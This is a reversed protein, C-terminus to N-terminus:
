MILKKGCWVTVKVWVRTTNRRDLLEANFYQMSLVLVVWETCWTWWILCTLLDPIYLRLDRWRQSYWGTGVRVAMSHGKVGSLYIIWGSLWRNMGWVGRRWAILAVSFYLCNIFIDNSWCVSQDRHSPWNGILSNSSDTPPCTLAVIGLDCILRSWKVKM